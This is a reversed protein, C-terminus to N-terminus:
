HSFDLETLTRDTQLCHLAQNQPAVFPIQGPSETAPVAKLSCQATPVSPSCERHCQKRAPKMKTQCSGHLCVLLHGPSPMRSPDPQGQQLRPKLFESFWGGVSETASNPQGGAIGLKLDLDPSTAHSRLFSHSAVSVKIQTCHPIHPSMRGQSGSVGGHAFM